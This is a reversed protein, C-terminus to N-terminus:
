GRPHKRMYNRAITLNKQKTGGRNLISTGGGFSGTDLFTVWEGMETKVVISLTNYGRKPPVQWVIYNKSNSVRNWGKFKVM